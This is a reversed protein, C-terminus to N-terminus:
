KPVLLEDANAVWRDWESLLMLFRPMAAFGGSQAVLLLPEPQADIIAVVQRIYHDSRGRWQSELHRLM